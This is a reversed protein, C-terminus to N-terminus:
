KQNKAEINYANKANAKKMEDKIESLQNILKEFGEKSSASEPNSIMTKIESIMNGVKEFSKNLSQMNELSSFQAMQSIFEKDQIPDLPNQNALQKLMIHLFQDKGLNQVRASGSKKMEKKEEDIEDLRKKQESSLRGEIKKEPKKEEHRAVNRARATQTNNVQM